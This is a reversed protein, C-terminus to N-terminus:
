QLEAEVRPFKFQRLSRLRGLLFEREDRSLTPEFDSWNAQCLIDPDKIRERHFAGLIGVVEEETMKEIEELSIM